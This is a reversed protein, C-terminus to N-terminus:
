KREGKLTLYLTTLAAHDRVLARIMAAKDGPKIKRTRRAAQILERSERLSARLAELTDSIADDPIEIIM